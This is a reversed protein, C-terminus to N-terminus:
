SRGHPTNCTMLSTFPVIFVANLVLFFYECFLTVSSLFVLSINVASNSSFLDRILSTCRCYFDEENFSLM